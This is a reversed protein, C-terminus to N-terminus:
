NGLADDKDVTSYNRVDAAYELLQPFVFKFVKPQSFYARAAEVSFPVLKGKADKVEWDILVAELFVELALKDNTIQNLRIEKAFKFKTREQAKKIAPNDSDFLVMKFNGWLNGHEDVVDFWSGESAMSEDYRSPIHFSFEAM